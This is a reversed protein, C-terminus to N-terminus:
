SDSKITENLYKKEIIVSILPTQLCANQIAEAVCRINGLMRHKRIGQRVNRISYAAIRDATSCCNIIDPSLMGQFIRASM